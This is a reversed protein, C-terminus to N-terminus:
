GRAPLPEPHPLVQDPKRDADLMRLVDDGVEFPCEVLELGGPGRPHFVARCASFTDGRSVPFEVPPDRRHRLRVVKRLVLDVEDPVVLQVRNERDRGTVGDDVAGALNAVALDGSSWM